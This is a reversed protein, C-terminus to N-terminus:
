TRAGGGIGLVDHVHGGEEGRGRGTGPADHVPSHAVHLGPAIDLLQKTMVACACRCRCVRVCVRARARLFVFFLCVRLMYLVPLLSMCVGACCLFVCLCEFM